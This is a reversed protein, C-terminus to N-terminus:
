AAVKAAPPDPDPDKLELELQQALIPFNRKAVRHITQLQTLPAAKSRTFWAAFDDQDTMIWYGAPEDKRSGVPLLWDRRLEEIAHHLMRIQAPTMPLYSFYLELLRDRSCPKESTFSSLTQAIQFTRSNIPKPAIELARQIMEAAPSPAPHEAPHTLLTPCPQVDGQPTQWVGLNNCRTCSGGSSLVSEFLSRPQDTPM